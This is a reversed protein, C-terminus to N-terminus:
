SRRVSLVAGRRVKEKLRVGWMAGSVAGLQMAAFFFAALPVLHTWTLVALSVFAILVQMRVFTKKYQEWM